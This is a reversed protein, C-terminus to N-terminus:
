YKQKCNVSSFNPVDSFVSSSEWKSFRASRASMVFVHVSLITRLVSATSM